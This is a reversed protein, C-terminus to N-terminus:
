VKSEMGWIEFLAAEHCFGGVCCNGGGGSKFHNSRYAKM